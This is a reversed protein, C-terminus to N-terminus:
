INGLRDYKNKLYSYLKGSSARAIRLHECHKKYFDPSEIVFLNKKNLFWSGYYKIFDFPIHKEHLFIFILYGAMSLCYSERKTNLMSLYVVLNNDMNQPFKFILIKFLNDKELEGKLIKLAIDEYPGLNINAFEEIKSVSARWLVSIFFKKFLSYNFDNSKMHYQIYNPFRYEQFNYIDRLLIRYAEDEFLKIITGDCKACLISKDYAGMKCQKWDGTITNIAAFTEEKYNLYFNRPIIHAKILKKEQGCFKCIGINQKTSEEKM